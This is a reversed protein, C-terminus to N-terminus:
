ELCMSGISSIYDCSQTRTAKTTKAVDRYKELMPDMHKSHFAHTAALVMCKLQNETCVKSFEMIIDSDGAVVTQSRSNIAAYDLLKKTDGGAFTKMKKQVENHDAQIVLM